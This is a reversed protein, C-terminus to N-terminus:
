GAVKRKVKSIVWVIIIWGVLVFKVAAILATPFHDEPSRINNLMISNEAVDLVGAIAALPINLRLLSNLVLNKEVNMQHNSQNIMLLVYFILFAYDLWISSKVTYMLNKQEWLKVTDAADQKNSFEFCEITPTDASWLHYAKMGLTFFLVFTGIWLLWRFWPM